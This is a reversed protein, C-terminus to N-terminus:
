FQSKNSLTKQILEVIDIMETGKEIDFDMIEKHLLDTKLRIYHDYDNISKSNHFLQM